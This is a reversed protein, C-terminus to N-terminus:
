LSGILTKMRGLLEMLRFPKSVVDDMGADMAMSIQQTRASATIAIVPIHGRLTGDNQYERIKKVAALGDMIPMEWDMLIVSLEQGRGEESLAGTVDNWYKTKRLFEIAEGGHNAVDVVCGLNRLQKALVRQNVLNDEVILVHLVEPVQKPTESPEPAQRRSDLAEAPIDPHKFFAISGQRELPAPQSRRAKVYFSFTSGCKFESEFGIAGGQMETLRRSIFLGLGSGGYNIHTRPSAQSFRAFLLEKEDESLGRGTDQVSLQVYVLEGKTWYEQLRADEDCVRDRIYKVGSPSVEPQEASAGISVTILRKSELRTFKIANTILNILVQLLRTPDLSVWDVALQRYSEDVAFKMDVGAAKAESRFMKVAHAAVTEPQADIPAIVLLGSDLKSITLIDDVIRKMHQACEVITQAADLGNDLLGAYVSSLGSDTTKVGSYSSIIGDACQIIASLPNRMEHSTTDIFNELLRKGELANDTRIKQVGEAWKQRSIDTACGVIEKVENNPGIEPYTSCLLWVFHKQSKNDASELEEQPHWPMITKLEFTVPVKDIVLKALLGKCYELADPTTIHLWAETMDEYNIAAAFVEFWKQNRYTFHGSVDAIFIAVDAREAFREFKKETIDVERQSQLLHKSLQKRINAAQNITQERQRIEEEFLVVSALSTALLRNLVQIFQKYDDDYPRRPNVGLILFGLIQGSTIPLIPCIILSRCADGYGRWRVNQLLSPPFHEDKINILTLDRSEAASRLYPMLAHSSNMFDLKAPAMPHNSPVGLAGKLTCNKLAASSTMPVLAADNFDADEVAYLLAFPADKDNAALTTLVCDWYAELNQANATQGGIEILSAVRRELIKKKTTEFIPKYYGAVIGDEGIVPMFQFSFFTEEVIGHRDLFLTLDHKVTSRGSARIHEIIPEFNDWYEHAAVRASLGVCPHLTGLIQIYSANYIMVVDEGWFVIAPNHDQMTINVMLRLQPSWGTMPGLSTSSWDISRFYRVHESISSPPIALTCDYPGALAIDYSPAPVLAEMAAYADGAIQPGRKPQSSPRPGDNERPISLQSSGALSSLGGFGKGHALFGQLGSIVRWRHEITIASWFLGEYMCSKDRSSQEVDNYNKLLWQRFKTYPHLSSAGATTIDEKGTVVNLLEESALLSPNCYIPELLSAENVTSLDLIFTPRHDLELAKI